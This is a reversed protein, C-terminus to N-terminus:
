IDLKLGEDLSDLEPDLSDDISDIEQLSADVATVDATTAPVNAAHVGPKVPQKTACGFTLALALILAIAILQKM